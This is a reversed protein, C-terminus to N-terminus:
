RARETRARSGRLAAQLPTTSVEDGQAAELSLAAAVREKSPFHHYPGVTGPPRQADPDRPVDGAPSSPVADVPIVRHRLEPPPM